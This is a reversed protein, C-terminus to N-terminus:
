STFRQTWLSHHIKLTQHFIAFSSQPNSGLVVLFFASDNDMWGRRCVLQKILSDLVVKILLFSTCTIIHHSLSFSYDWLSDVLLYYFNTYWVNIIGETEDCPHLGLRAVIWAGAVTPIFIVCFATNCSRGSLCNVVSAWFSSCCGPLPLNKVVWVM